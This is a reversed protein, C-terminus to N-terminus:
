RMQLQGSNRGRLVRLVLQPPPTGLSARFGGLDTFQGSSAALVVDGKSLGNRAARSGRAVDEVLVGALGQRRLSEPLDAFSAGDLREDLQGGALAKPAERLGTNLSLPKGDRRVDLTM